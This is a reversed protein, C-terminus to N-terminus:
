EGGYSSRFLKMATQSAMAFQDSILSPLTAFNEGDTETLQYARLAKMKPSSLVLCKFCKFFNVKAVRPLSCVDFFAGNPLIM